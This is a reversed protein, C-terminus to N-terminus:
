GNLPLGVRSGSPEAPRAVEKIIFLPRNKTQQFIRGIYEGIMGLVCIQVGGVLLIATVISMWGAIPIRGTFWLFFSLGLFLLSFVLFVLGVLIVLQLPRTSFGTLADAAFHFLRGVSYKTVGKFRAAREFYIPVQKFGIWSIMGRIFRHQEPMEMLRDLVRRSILRFDGTDLPIPVDSLKNLLRYFLDSAVGRLASEGQHRKRRQGYVVDAGDDMMRMMGSLLEPPDQLDADLVLIREGRAVSLGASLALQHGHNRSLDVGVVHATTEVLAVIKPWTEDSSGDNTLVIEFGDGVVQRCVGEVRRYLEAINEEEDYCPIVVSLPLPPLQTKPPLDM